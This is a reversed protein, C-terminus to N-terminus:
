LESLLILHPRGAYQEAKKQLLDQAAQLSNLVLIRKSFLRAYIVDGAICLTLLSDPRISLLATLEGYTKSWAAFTHHQNELPLQHVNGVVPLRRPGPPLRRDRIARQYAYRCLVLVAAVSVALLVHFAQM